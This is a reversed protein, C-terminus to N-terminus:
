VVLHEDTKLDNTAVIHSMRVGSSLSGRKKEWQTEFPIVNAMFYLGSGNLFLKIVELAVVSTPTTVNACHNNLISAIRAIQWRGM